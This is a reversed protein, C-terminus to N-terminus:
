RETVRRRRLLVAGVVVLVAAVGLGVLAAVGTPLWLSLIGLMAAAFLALYALYLCALGVQRRPPRREDQGFTTIRGM